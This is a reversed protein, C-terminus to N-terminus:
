EKPSNGLAEIARNCLRNPDREGVEALEIIKRAVLGTIPDDHDTLQLMKLAHEYTATMREIAEPEFVTERIMRYVAM